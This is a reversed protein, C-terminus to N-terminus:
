IILHNFVCMRLSVTTLESMNLGNKVMEPKLECLKNNADGVQGSFFSLDVLIM